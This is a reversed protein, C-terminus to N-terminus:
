SAAVLLLPMMEMYILNDWKWLLEYHANQQILKHSSGSFCIDVSIAPSCLSAKDVWSFPYQLLETLKLKLLRKPLQVSLHLSDRCQNYSSVRRNTANCWHLFFFIFPMTHTCDFTCYVTLIIIFFSSYLFLSLQIPNGYYKLIWICEFVIRESLVSIVLGIRKNKIRM